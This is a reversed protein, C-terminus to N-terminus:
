WAGCDFTTKLGVSGVRAKQRECADRVASNIEGDHDADMVNINNDADFFLVPTKIGADRAKQLMARLARDIQKGEKTIDILHSM